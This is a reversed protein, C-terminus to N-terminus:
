VSARFFSPPILGQSRRLGRRSNHTKLSKWRASAYLSIEACRFELEKKSTGLEINSIIFQVIFLLFNDLLRLPSRREWPIEYSESYKKGLPTNLFISGPDELSLTRVVGPLVM